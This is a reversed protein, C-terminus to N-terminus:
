KKNIGEGMNGKSFGQGGRTEGRGITRNESPSIVKRSPPPSVRTEYNVGPSLRSSPAINQIDQNFGLGRLEVHHAWIPKNHQSAINSLREQFASRNLKPLKSIDFSPELVHLGIGEDKAASIAGSTFGINTILIAKHAAVKQKIQQLLLVDGQDIKDNSRWKANAINIYKSIDSDTEWYLDIQHKYEPLGKRSPNSIKMSKVDDLSLNEKEAIFRRCLEEYQESQM